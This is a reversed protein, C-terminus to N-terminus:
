SHRAIPKPPGAMALDRRALAGENRDQIAADHRGVLVSPQLASGLLRAKGDGREDGDPCEIPYADLILSCIGTHCLAKGSQFPGDELAGRSGSGLARRHRTRLQRRVLKGPHVRALPGIQDPAHVPPQM